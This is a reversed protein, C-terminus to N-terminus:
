NKSSYNNLIMIEVPLANAASCQSFSANSSFFAEMAM